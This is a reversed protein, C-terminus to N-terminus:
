NIMYTEEIFSVDTSHLKNLPGGYTLLLLCCYHSLHFPTTPFIGTVTIVFVCQAVNGSLDTANYMVTWVGISLVTPSEYNTSVMVNGDNDSFTPVAWTVTTNTLGNDATQSFDIPCTLVSPIM